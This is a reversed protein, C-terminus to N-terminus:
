RRTINLTRDPDLTFLATAAAGFTQELPGSERVVRHIAALLDRLSAGRALLTTLARLVGARIPGAVCGTALVAPVVGEDALAAAFATRLLTQEVQGALGPPADGDLLVLQLRSDRLHDALVEASVAGMAGEFLVAGRFDLFGGSLHLVTAPAIVLQRALQQLEASRGRPISEGSKTRRPRIHQVAVGAARYADYLSISADEDYGRTAIESREALLVPGPESYSSRQSTVRDRDRPLRHLARIAEPLPSGTAFQTLEWPVWSAHSTDLALDFSPALAYEPALALDLLAGALIESMERAVPEPDRALQHLFRGPVIEREDAWAAELMKSGQGLSRWPTLLSSTPARLRFRWERAGDALVLLEVRRAATWRPPPSPEEDDAGPSTPFDSATPADIGRLIPARTPVNGALGATPWVATPPTPQREIRSEKGLSRVVDTRSSQEPPIGKSQGGPRARVRDILRSCQAAWEVTDRVPTFVDRAHWTARAIDDRTVGSDATPGFGYWREAQELAIMARLWRAPDDDPIEALGLRELPPPRRESWGLRDGARLACRLAVLSDPAPPASDRGLLDDVLSGLLRSAEQGEGVLRHAHVRHLRDHTETVDDPLLDLVRDTLGSIPRPVGTLEAAHFFLALRQVPTAVAALTDHLHALANVQREPAALDLQLLALWVHEGPPGPRPAAQDLYARLTERDAAQERGLRLRLAHGEVPLPTGARWLRWGDEARDLWRTAEAPSGDHELLLRAALFPAALDDPTDSAQAQEQLARCDALCGRVDLLRYSAMARAQRLPRNDPILDDASRLADLAAVPRLRHLAIQARHHATLAESSPIEGLADTLEQLGDLQGLHLLATSRSTLLAIKHGVERSAASGGQDMSTQLADAFSKLWEARSETTRGLADRTLSELEDFREAQSLSRLLERELEDRLEPTGLRDAVAMARRLQEARDPHWPDLAAALGARIALELADDPGAGLAARYGAQAREEDGDAAAIMAAITLIEPSAPQGSPDLAAHIATLHERAEDRAQQDGTNGAARQAAALGLITRAAIAPGRLEDLTADDEGHHETLCRVLTRALAVRAQNQFSWVDTRRSAQELRNWLDRVFEAKRTGFAHEIAQEGLGRSEFHRAADESIMLFVPKGRLIRLMPERVKREDFVLADGRRTVWSAGSAYALLRQWLAAIDIADPEHTPRYAFPRRARARSSLHDKDLKDLPQDGGLQERLLPQLVRDVFDRDLERPMVGWRVLWRLYRDDIRGIVRDILYFEGATDYGTLGSPAIDPQNVCVDALLSLMMPHGEAVAICAEILEERPIQRIDGLYTRADEASFRAIAESRLDFPPFLETFGPVRHTEPGSASDGEASSEAGGMVEAFRYRGALLLRLGPAESHVLHLMRLLALPSESRDLLVETTDLVILVRLLGSLLSAVHYAARETRRAREDDDLDRGRNQAPYSGDGYASRISPLSELSWAQDDDPEATEQEAEGDLLEQGEIFERFPQRELQSDLQRAIAVLLRWPETMLRIPDVQTDFDIRATAIREPVCRRVITGRVLMSKGSGGPGSIELVWPGHDSLLADVLERSRTPEHYHLTALRETEWLSNLSLRHDLEHYTANLAHYRPDIAGDLVHRRSRLLEVLAGCRPIDHSEEAEDFLRRIRQDAAAPDGLALYKLWELADASAHAEAHAESPRWHEALRLSIAARQDSDMRKILVERYPESVAYRGEGHTTVMVEDIVEEFIAASDPGPLLVDAFLKADFHDPVACLALFRAMDPREAELGEVLNWARTHRQGSLREM